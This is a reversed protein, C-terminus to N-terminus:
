FCACPLWLLVTINEFAQRDSKCRSFSSSSKMTNVFPVVCSSKRTNTYIGRAQQHSPTLTGGQPQSTFQGISKHKIQVTSKTCKKHSYFLINIPLHNVNKNKNTIGKLWVLFNYKELSVQTNKCVVVTVWQNNLRLSTCNWVFKLAAKLAFM